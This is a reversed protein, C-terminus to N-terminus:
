RWCALIQEMLNEQGIWEMEHQDSHSLQRICSFIRLPIGRCPRSSNPHLSSALWSWPLKQYVEIIKISEEDTLSRFEGNSGLPMYGKLKTQNYREINAAIKGYDVEENEDFITMNPPFIGSLKEKYNREM